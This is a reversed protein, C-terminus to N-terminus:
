GATIREDGVPRPRLEADGVRRKAAFDEQLRTIVELCHMLNSPRGSLTVTRHTADKMPQNIVVKAGTDAM